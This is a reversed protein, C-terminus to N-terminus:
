RMGPDPAPVLTAARALVGDRDALRTQFTTDYEVGRTTKLELHGSVVGDKWGDIRLRAATVNARHRADGAESADEGEDDDFSRRNVDPEFVWPFAHDPTTSTAFGAGWAFAAGTLAVHLLHRSEFPTADWMVLFEEVAPGGDLRPLRGGPLEDYLNIWTTGPSTLRCSAAKPDKCAVTVRVQGAKLAKLLGDPTITAREAPEVSWIVPMQATPAPKKTRGAYPPPLCTPPPHLARLSLTQGVALEHVGGSSVHLDFSPSAEAPAVAFLFLLTLALPRRTLLGAGAAVTTATRVNGSRRAEGHPEAVEM